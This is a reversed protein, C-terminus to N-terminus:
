VDLPFFPIWVPNRKEKLRTSLFSAKNKKTKELGQYLKLYFDLTKNITKERELVIIIDFKLVNQFNNTIIKLPTSLLFM